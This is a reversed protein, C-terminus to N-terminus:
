WSTIVRSPSAEEARMASSAAVATSSSSAAIQDRGQQCGRQPDAFRRQVGARKATDQGAAADDVLIRQNADEPLVRLLEALLHLPQQSTLKRRFHRIGFADGVDGEVRGMERILDDKSVVRAREEILFKLLRVAQPDLSIPEDEQSLGAGDPDFTFNSFSYVM